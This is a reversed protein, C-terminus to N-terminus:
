DVCRYTVVASSHPALTLTLGARLEAGPYRGARALVPGATNNWATVAYSRTAAVGRLMFSKGV